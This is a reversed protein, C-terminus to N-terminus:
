CTVKLIDWLQSSLQPVLSTPSLLTKQGARQQGQTTILWVYLKNNFGGIVMNSFRFILPESARWKSLNQQTVNAKTTFEQHDDWLSWTKEKQMTM